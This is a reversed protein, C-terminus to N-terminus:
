GLVDPANPSRITALSLMADEFTKRVKNEVLSARIPLTSEQKHRICDVLEVGLVEQLSIRMLLPWYILRVLLLLLHLLHLLLILLLRSSSSRLVIFLLDGAM